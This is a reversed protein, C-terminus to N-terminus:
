SALGPLHKLWKEISDPFFGPVGSILFLLWFLAAVLIVTGVLALAKVWWAQAQVWDTWVKLYHRARQLLRQAWAFESAWIVIGLIVVLWGPGPLPVLFLGLVFVLLGVIGVIVRYILHTQPNSRIKRRWAWDNAIRDNDAMEHADSLGSATAGVRGHGRDDAVTPVEHHEGSGTAPETM